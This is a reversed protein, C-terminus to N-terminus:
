ATRELINFSPLVDLRVAPKVRFGHFWSRFFFAIFKVFLEEAM